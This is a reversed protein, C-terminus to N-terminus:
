SAKTFHRRDYPLAATLYWTMSCLIMVAGVLFSMKFGAWQGINGGLLLGLGIGVDWSTLYTSSATARRNHPAMNVFWANYAPLMMGYAMGIFLAISLFLNRVLLPTLGSVFGL